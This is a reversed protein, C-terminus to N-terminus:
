WPVPAPGQIQECGAICPEHAWAGLGYSFGNTFYPYITVAIRRGASTATGCVPCIETARWVRDVFRLPDAAIDVRVVDQWTSDPTPAVDIQVPTKLRRLPRERWIRDWEDRDDGNDSMDTIAPRVTEFPKVILRLNCM